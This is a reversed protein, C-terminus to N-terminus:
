IPHPLPRIDGWLGVLFSVGDRQCGGDVLRQPAVIVALEAVDVHCCSGRESRRRGVDRVDAQREATAVEERVTHPGGVAQAGEGEVAEAHRRLRLETRGKQM